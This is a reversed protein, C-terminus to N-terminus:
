KKKQHELRELYCDGEKYIMTDLPEKYANDEGKKLM